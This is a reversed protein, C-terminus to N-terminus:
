LIWVPSRGYLHAWGPQSFAKVWSDLRWTPSGTSPHHPQPPSPRCPEVVHRRTEKATEGSAVCCLCVRCIDWSNGHRSPNLTVASGGTPVRWWSRWPTCSYCTHGPMCRLSYVCVPRRLSFATQAWTLGCGDTVTAPSKDSSACTWVCSRPASLSGGTGESSRTGLCGWGCRGWRLGRAWSASRGCEWDLLRLRRPGAGPAVWNVCPQCSRETVQSGEDMGFARRHPSFFFGPFCYSCLM